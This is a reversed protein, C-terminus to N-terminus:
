KMANTPRAVSPKHVYVTATDTQPSMGFGCIFVNTVTIMFVLLTAVDNITSTKRLHHGDNLDHYRVQRRGIILFLVATIIQMIISCSIMSLLAYYFEQDEAGMQICVKLQSANASLLALDLLSSAITKKTAYLNHNFAVQPFSFCTHIISANPLMDTCSSMFPVPAPFSIYILLPFSGSDHVYATEFRPLIIISPVLAVSSNQQIYLLSRMVRVDPYRMFHELKVHFNSNDLARLNRGSFVFVLYRFDVWFSSHNFNCSELACVSEFSHVGKRIFLCTLFQHNFRSM